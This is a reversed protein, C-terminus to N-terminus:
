PSMIPRIVAAHIHHSSISITSMCYGVLEKNGNSILRQPVRQTFTLKEKLDCFPIKAPFTIYSVVDFSM